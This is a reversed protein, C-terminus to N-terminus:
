WSFIPWGWRPLKESVMRMMGSNQPISNPHIMGANGNRNEMMAQGNPGMGPVVQRQMVGQHQGPMRLQGNVMAGQHRPGGSMQPMRVQPNVSPNNVGMPGYPYQSNPVGPPCFCHRFTSLCTPLTGFDCRVPISEEMRHRDSRLTFRNSNSHLRNPWNHLRRLATANSCTPWRLIPWIVGLCEYRSAPTHNDHFDRSSMLRRIRASCFIKLFPVAAAVMGELTSVLGVRKRVGM